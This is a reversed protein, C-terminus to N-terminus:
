RTAETNSGHVYDRQPNTIKEDKGTGKRGVGGTQVACGKGRDRVIRKVICIVFKKAVGYM